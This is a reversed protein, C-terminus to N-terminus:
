PGWKEERRLSNYHESLPVPVMYRGQEARAKRMQFWVRDATPGEAEIKAMIQNERERSIAPHLCLFANAKEREIDREMQAMDQDKVKRVMKYKRSWFIPNILCIDRANRKAAWSM